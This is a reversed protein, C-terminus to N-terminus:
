DPDCDVALSRDAVVARKRGQATACTSKPVFKEGKEIAACLWTWEMGRSAFGIFRYQVNKYEFRLEGLGACDEGLTDFYPRIWKERPQQRLYRLRTDLRALLKDDDEHERRWNDLVDLNDAVVYCRFRWDAM